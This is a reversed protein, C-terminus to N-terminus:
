FLITEHGTNMLVLDILAITVDAAAAAIGLWVLVKWYWRSYDFRM